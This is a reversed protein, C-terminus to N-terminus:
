GHLGLRMEDCFWVGRDISVKTRLAIGFAISPRREDSESADSVAPTTSAERRDLPFSPASAQESSATRPAAVPLAVHLVSPTVVAPEEPQATSSASLAQALKVALVRKEVRSACGPRSQELSPSSSQPPHTSSRASRLPQKSSLARRLEGRDLGRDTRGHPVNGEALACATAGVARRHAQFCFPSTADTQASAGGTRGASVSPDVRPRRSRQRGGVSRGGGALRGASGAVLVPASPAGCSRAGARFCRKLMSASDARRWTIQL